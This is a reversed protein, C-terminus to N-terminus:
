GWCQKAGDYVYREIADAAQAPTPTPVPLWRPHTFLNSSLSRGVGRAGRQMMHALICCPAEYALWPACYRQDYKEAPIVGSRFDHAVGLAIACGEAGMETLALPHVVRTGTLKRDSM